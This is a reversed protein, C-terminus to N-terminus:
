WFTEATKRYFGWTYALCSLQLYTLLETNCINKDELHADMFKKNQFESRNKLVITLM